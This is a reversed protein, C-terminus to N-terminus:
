KALGKVLKVFRDPVFNNEDFFTTLDVPQYNPFHEEFRKLLPPTNARRRELANKLSLRVENKTGVCEFPKDEGDLILGDFMEALETKELMNEGFIKVLTEDDLFAALLIYVYLCKACNCCWVDTKGGLNCSQFVPFYRPYNVFARAIQWESLPRLLSFYEPCEGFSEACYERFDKEFETSKSYQHNIEKGEVYSENASSENSLVIYRVNLMIGHLLASFAVVASFPTHGNLWGRANLELLTKDITRKPCVAKEPPIEAAEVCGTTAKRPNIIYPTIEEGAQKLLELTVVSDKGGGVPVLAGKLNAHIEPLPEPEPAIITMFSDFDADINNRYFFEGLGNFYLKKWWSKQRGSLGGCRIEVTPCCACKWYSVLEAMGLSFAAAELQKCSFHGYMYNRDFEWKPYFHFEDIQFHFTLSQEKLEYSHYIFLPHEKRLQEFTNM